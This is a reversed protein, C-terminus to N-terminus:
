GYLCRKTGTRIKYLDHGLCSQENRKAIENTCLFRSVVKFFLISEFITGFQSDHDDVFEQLCCTCEESVFTVIMVLVSPHLMYFINRFSKNYNMVLAVDLFQESVIRVIM